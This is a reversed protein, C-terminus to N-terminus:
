DSKVLGKEKAKEYGLRLLEKIAGQRNGAKYTELMQILDSDKDQHLNVSFIYRAQQRYAKNYEKYNDKSIAGYKGSGLPRGM